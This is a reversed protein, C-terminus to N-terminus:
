QATAGSLKIVNQWKASESKITADLDEPSGGRPTIGAALMRDRVDGIQLVENIARNLADIIPRPTGARTAVYNETSASFGPLQAAIAPVNPLLSSAERDTVGLARLASSRIHPAFVVISDIAMQVNGALLDQLAPGSGRYPVHTIDIEALSKFLESALHSSAGIGASAFNLKGPNAKAYTILESVTKAPM